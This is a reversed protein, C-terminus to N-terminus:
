RTGGGMVVAGAVMHGVELSREELSLLRNVPPEVLVADRMSDTSGQTSPLDVALCVSAQTVWEPLGRAVPNM